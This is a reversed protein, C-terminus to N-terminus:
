KRAQSQAYAQAQARLRDAEARAAAQRQQEQRIEEMQLSTAIGQIRSQLSQLLRTVNDCDRIWEDCKGQFEAQGLKNWYSSTDKSKSRMESALNTASNIIPNLKTAAAFAYTSNM